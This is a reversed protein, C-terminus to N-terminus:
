TLISHIFMVTVQKDGPTYPLTKGAGAGPPSPDGSSGRSNLVMQLRVYRQVAVLLLLDSITAPAPTTFSTTSPAHPLDLAVQLHHLLSSLPSFVPAGLAAARLTFYRSLGRISGRLRQLFLFTYALLVGRGSRHIRRHFVLRLRQLLVLPSAEAVAGLVETRPRFRGYMAAAM